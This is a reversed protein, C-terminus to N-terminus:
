LFPLDWKVNGQQTNSTMGTNNYQDIFVIRMKYKCRASLLTVCDAFWCM